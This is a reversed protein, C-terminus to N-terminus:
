DINLDRSRMSLMQTCQTVVLQGPGCVPLARYPCDAPIVVPSTHSAAWRSKQGGGGMENGKEEARELVQYRGTRELGGRSEEVVSVSM